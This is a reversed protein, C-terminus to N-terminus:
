NFDFPLNIPLLVLDCDAINRTTKESTSKGTTIPAWTSLLNTERPPFVRSAVPASQRSVIGIVICIHQAGAAAPWQRELQRRGFLVPIRGDRLRLMLYARVLVNDGGAVRTAARPFQRHRTFVTHLDVASILDSSLGHLGTVSVEKKNGAPM